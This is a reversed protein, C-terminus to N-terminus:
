HWKILKSTKTLGQNDITRVLYIGDPLESIDIKQLNSTTTIRNLLQGYTNLLEVRSNDTTNVIIFDTSPNPYIAFEDIKNLEAIGAAPQYVFAGLDATGGSSLRIKSDYDLDPCDNQTAKGIAPSNAQLHFDANPANVFMPNGNIQSSSITGYSNTGYILNNEFTANTPNNEILLQSYKNNSLINNRVYISDCASGGVHIGAGWSGGNNYCTNNYIHINRMQHTQGSEGWNDTEAGIGMMPNNYSINNYVFVDSLLGGDENAVAIGWANCNHVRNNYVWVHHMHVNWADVYIGLRNMDHVHNDHVWGYHGHKSDIGEGGKTGTGGHHVHNHSIEFSDCGAVSICEQAGGNCALVVENSDVLVKSSNWIGIGSSKTNNTICRSVTIHHAGNAYIGNSTSNIVKFGIIHIYSLNEVQILGNGWEAMSIGTGDIIALTDTQSRIVLHQNANGGNNIIVKENYLGPLVVVTDGAGAITTAENITKYTGAVGSKSVVITKGCISSTAVFLLIVIHNKRIM